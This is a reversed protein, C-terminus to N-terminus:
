SWLVSRCMGTGQVACCADCAHNYLEQGTGMMCHNRERLVGALRESQPSNNNLVLNQNREDYEELLAHLFFGDWVTDTSLAYTTPWTSPFRMSVNSHELM